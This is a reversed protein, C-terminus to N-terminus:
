LSAPPSPPPPTNPSPAALAPIFPTPLTIYVQGPVNESYSKTCCKSPKGAQGGVGFTRSEKMTRIVSLLRDWDRTTIHGIRYKQVLHGGTLIMVLNRGGGAEEQEEMEEGVKGGM